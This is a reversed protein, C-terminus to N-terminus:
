LRTGAAVGGWPGVVARMPRRRWWWRRIVVRRWRTSRHSGGNSREPAAHSCEAHAELTLRGGHSSSATHTVAARQVAVAVVGGRAYNSRNALAGGGGHYSGGGESVFAIGAWGHWLGLRGVPGHWSYGNYFYGPGTIGWPHAPTLHTTTTDM